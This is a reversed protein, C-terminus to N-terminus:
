PRKAPNRRNDFVSYIIIETQHVVYFITFPFKSIQAGRFKKHKIPYLVPNALILRITEEVCDLFTLELGKVQNEYWQMANDIELLAQEAYRLRM